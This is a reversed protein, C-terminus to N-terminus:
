NHKNKSYENKSKLIQIIGRGEFNDTVANIIEDLEVQWRKIGIKRVSREFQKMNYFFIFGIAISTGQTYLANFNREFSIEKDIYEELQHKLDKDIKILEAMKYFGAKAISATGILMYIHGVYMCALATQWSSNVYFINLLLFIGNLITLFGVSRALIGQRYYKKIKKKLSLKKRM